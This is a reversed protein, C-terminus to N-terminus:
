FVESVLTAKYLQNEAHCKQPKLMDCGTATKM